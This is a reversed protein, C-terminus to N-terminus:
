SNENLWELIMPLNQLEFQEQAPTGSAPFYVVTTRNHYFIIEVSKTKAKDRLDLLIEGNPGPAAHFIPQGHKELLTTLFEANNLALPHPALAEDEDWNDELSTFEELLKHIRANLGFERFSSITTSATTTKLNQPSDVFYGTPMTMVLITHPTFSNIWNQM